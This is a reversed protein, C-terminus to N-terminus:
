GQGKESRLPQGQRTQLKPIDQSLVAAPLERRQLLHPVKREFITLVADPRLTRQMIIEFKAVMLSNEVLCDKTFHNSCLYSTATPGSEIQM